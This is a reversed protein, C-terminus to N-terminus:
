SPTKDCAGSVENSAEALCSKKVNRRPSQQRAGAPILGRKISGWEIWTVGAEPESELKSTM